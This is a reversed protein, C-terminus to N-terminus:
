IQGIFDSLNDDSQLGFKQRLKYRNNEVARTSVHMLSAIEKSVMGMKIFACLKQEKVTLEPHKEKLKSLFSHHVLEFQKEFLQWNSENKIDQEIKKVLNNIKREAENVEKIRKLRLLQGQLESLLDNKKIIHVTLSALEKEKYAMENNLKENRIKIVEKEKLLAESRLQAETAEFQKRQKFTAKNQMALIHRKFFMYGLGILIVFVVAYFMKAVWHRYWPPLIIFKFSIPNAEVGLSNRAYVILEYMGESLNSFSRSTHSSWGTPVEDFNEIFTSYYVQDDSFCPAAFEVDFSNKQFSYKPIQVQTFGIEKAFGISDTGGRFSRILVNFVNNNITAKNNMFHAFGDEIGFFVTQDQQLFVSEFNSVMRNELSMFPEVFKSYSHNGNYKLMGVHGDSFYWVDLNSDQKILYPYKGEEFFQDFRSDRFTQRKKKDYSFIGDESTFLCDDGIKVLNLPKSNGEFDSFQFTDIKSYSLFDPEFVLRFVGKNGNSMWLNGGEDWELFRSSEDFGPIKTKFVWKEKNKEFLILGSYTGALLLEPNERITKFLWVGNEYPPTILESGTETIRYAGQNHGCLLEDQDHFLTWVQGSSGSVVKFDRREKLPDYLKEKEIKYLAQNTGFYYFGKFFDMAYGTGMNFFGDLFDVSSNFNVRVIGNDLGGWINGERDVFVSLVTNNGLGRDKDILSVVRGSTDTIVLGNQITGFVFYDNQYKTGCFIDARKLLANAPVKWEQFNKMDWLYLGDYMSGIVIQNESLALITGLQKGSFITGNVIPYLKDGRVEMLGQKEDNVLLMGNVCHISEIRSFAPVISVLKDDRFICIGKDSQFVVSGNWDFINWYDGQNKLENTIALSFYRLQGGSDPEYYGLENFSGAYIRDGIAKVCRVVYPGMDKHLQWSVDDYSLLGETNAFFLRDSLVQTVKWNQTGGGYLRRNFYEVDPIGVQVTQGHSSLPLCFSLLALFSLLFISRAM